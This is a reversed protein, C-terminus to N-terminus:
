WKFVIKNKMGKCAQMSQIIHDLHGIKLYIIKIIYVFPDFAVFWTACTFLRDHM